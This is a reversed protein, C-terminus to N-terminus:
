EKVLLNLSKGKWFRNYHQLYNLDDKHFFCFYGFSKKANIWDRKVIKKWVSYRDFFDDWLMEFDLAYVLEIGSLLM